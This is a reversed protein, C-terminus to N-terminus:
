DLGFLSRTIEAYEAANPSNAANRLRATPHHLIKKVISKTMLELHEELEPTLGSIRRVTKELESQRIKNAQRRLEIIIPLIELTSWYEVFKELEEQLIIEVQPIESKRRELSLHLKNSLTDMDFLNVGQIDKVDNEVDRPVAIDMIVLPNEQRTLMVKEIMAYSIITHPAGTSTILIDTDKLVEYLMEFSAAKGNFEKSLEEARGLTRNVIVFQSAGRKELSKLVLEAMDGAGVVTVNATPISIDIDILLNVAVSAISSPNQGIATETHARKGAHIATQFLKSLIKGVTGHQRAKAYADTVQGLIQPEGVVVSDLGSAVSLLHRVAEFDALRYLCSSIESMEINKTESLFNEIISFDLKSTIAYLEVRNCTSLIVLEQICEKGPKRGCGIRALSSELQYPTFAIRERFKVSAVKHSVGLCLIHIQPDGM